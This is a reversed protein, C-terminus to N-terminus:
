AVAEKPALTDNFAIAAQVADQTRADLDPVGGSILHDIFGGFTVRQGLARYATYLNALDAVTMKSLDNTTTGNNWAIGQREILHFFHAKSVEARWATLNRHASLLNANRVNGGKGDVERRKAITAALEFELLEVDVIEGKPPKVGDVRAQAIALKLERNQEPAAAIATRLETERERLRSTERAVFDIEHKINTIAQELPTRDIYTAKTM